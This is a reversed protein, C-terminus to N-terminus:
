DTETPRKSSKRATLCFVAKRCGEKLRELFTGSLSTRLTVRLRDGHSRDSSLHATQRQPVLKQVLMFDTENFGTVPSVHLRKPNHVPRALQETKVRKSGLIVLGLV